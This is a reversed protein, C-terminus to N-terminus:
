VMPISGGYMSWVPGARTPNVCRPDEFRESEPIWENYGEERYQDGLEERRTFGLGYQQGNGRREYNMMGGFKEDSNAVWFSSGDPVFDVGAVEGYFTKTQCENYNTANVATVRDASEALLLCKSGGGVPSFKMSRYCGPGHAEFTKLTRWTRTDYINVLCDQNATAVTTGDPSWACAFGFDYHGKLLRECRGTEANTITVDPTDGVVVRLRGDPSTSTCNIPWPYSHGSAQGSHSDGSTPNHLFTNTEIDLVRIQNDNCSLVAHYAHKGSYPIDCHNIIGNPARTAFGVVTSTDQSALRRLAYEGDFGGIMCISRPYDQSLALTTVRVPSVYVTENSTKSLDMICERESNWPRLRYVKSQDDFRDSSYVLHLHDQVAM